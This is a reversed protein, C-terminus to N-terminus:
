SIMIKEREKWILHRKMQITLKNEIFSKGQRKDFKNKHFKFTKLKKGHDGDHHDYLLLLLLLFLLTTTTTFNELILHGKRDM